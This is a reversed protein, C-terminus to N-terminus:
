WGIRISSVSQTGRRLANTAPIASFFNWGPRKSPPLIREERPHLHFLMRLKQAIHVMKRAPILYDGNAVDQRSRDLIMAMGAM